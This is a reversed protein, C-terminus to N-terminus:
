FTFPIFFFLFQTQKLHDARVCLHNFISTVLVISSVLLNHLTAPFLILLSFETRHKYVLSLSNSFFFFLGQEFIYVPVANLFCFVRLISLKSKDNGRFSALFVGKMKSIDNVSLFQIRKTDITTQISFM